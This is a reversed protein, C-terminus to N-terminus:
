RPSQRTWRLPYVARGDVIHPSPVVGQHRTTACIGEVVGCFGELWLADYLCERPLDVFSVTGGDDDLTLVEITGLARTAAAWAKAIFRLFTRPSPGWLAVGTQVFPRILPGELSLLLSRKNLLRAFELRGGVEVAVRTLEIDWALPVWDLRSLGDFGQLMRGLRQRAEREGAPGLVDLAQVNGAFYSAKIEAQVALRRASAGPRSASLTAASVM